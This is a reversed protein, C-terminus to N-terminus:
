GSSSRTPWTSSADWFALAAHQREVPDDTGALADVSDSLRRPGTRPGGREAAIAAVSPRSPSGPRSISRAVAPDLEGDASSCSPSCTSAPRLPQFDRVTTAGGHRVEVLRAPQCGSFPRASPPAPSAWCRPSGASAPCRSGPGMEGDVVEALVQDFVDDPVSRATVPQLPM